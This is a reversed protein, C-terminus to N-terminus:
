LVRSGFVKEHNKVDRLVVSNAGILSDAGIVIGGAVCAGSYLIASRGIRPYAIDSKDTRHRLGITVNQYIVAKTSIEVGSGIVVGVPHPFIVGPRIKSNVSLHCASLIVSVNWFFESLWFGGKKLRFYQALRFFFLMRVAPNFLVKSVVNLPTVKRKSCNHRIDISIKKLINM